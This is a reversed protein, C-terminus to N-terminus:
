EQKACVEVFNMSRGPAIHYLHYFTISIRNSVIFQLLIHKTFIRIGPGEVSKTISVNVAQCGLPASAM